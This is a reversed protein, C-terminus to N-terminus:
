GFFEFFVAVSLYKKVPITKVRLEEWTKVGYGCKNQDWIRGKAILDNIVLEALWEQILGVNIKNLILILSSKDGALQFTRLKRSNIVTCYVICNEIQASNRKFSYFLLYLIHTLLQLFVHKIRYWSHFWMNHITPILKENKRM